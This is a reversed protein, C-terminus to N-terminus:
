AVRGMASTDYGGLAEVQRHLAPDLLVEMLARVAPHDMLTEPLVLDFPERALPLAQLGWATAMAQVAVGVDALGTAVAAAVQEHALAATEQFGPVAERPVGAEQLCRALLERSGSGPERNVLRVGPRALDAVGRLGLPNHAPVVLAQEWSAFGVRVAPFPITRRIWPANYEGSAPELLHIGAVHVRGKGLAQLAARSGAPIWLGDVDWQRRLREMVLGLAPDCGAVVLEPPPRRGPLPQVQLGEPGQSALGDAPHHAHVGGVSLPFATLEGSVRALRVRRAGRRFLGPVPLEPDTAWTPTPEEGPLSFLEEVTAGLTRALRLAVDTSPMSRGSEIASYAQRTIGAKEALREQSWGRDTRRARLERRPPSSM